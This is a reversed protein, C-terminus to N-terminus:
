LLPRVEVLLEHSTREEFLVPIFVRLVYVPLVLQQQLPHVDGSPLQINHFYTIAPTDMYM